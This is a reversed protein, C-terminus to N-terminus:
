GKLTVALRVTTIPHGGDMNEAIAKIFRCPVGIEWTKRVSEGARVPHDLTLIDETDYRLGDCSSRIHIRLGAGASRDYACEASLAAQSVHEASIPPCLGMDTRGAPPISEVALVPMTVCFPRAIALVQVGIDEVAPRSAYRLTHFLYILPLEFHHHVEAFASADPNRERLAVPNGPHRNFHYGDRSWAYGISELTQIRTPHLKAGGYFMHFFGDCYSVKAESYGGDDWAGWDSPGLIPNGEYATWPGEPSRSTALSIPGYDPGTAGIPHETYLFYKGEHKVVGGVYGFKDFIPNKQHRTWPGLPSPATALGISWPSPASPTGPKREPMGSYWMYYKDAGEKLVFACAVSWEEWSGEPGLDLIPNRESKRWPGLPHPATAVGIRYGGRPWKKKDRATGHYYLYYTEEDKFVECCEVWHEDWAGPGGTTLIPNPGPIQIFRDFAKPPCYSKNM